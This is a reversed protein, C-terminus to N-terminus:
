VSFIDNNSTSAHNKKISSLLNTMSGKNYEGGGIGQGDSTGGGAGKKGGDASNNTVSSNIVTARCTATVCLGGGLGDGGDGGKGGKGGLAQNNAVISNIVTLQAGDPNVGVLTVFGVGLGGGYGNGGNNGTGGAGGIASNGIIQSDIITATTPLGFSSNSIEIGGGFAFGGLAHVLLSNVGPGGQGAIASNNAVICRTMHLTASPSNSIGGGVGDGGPGTATAGGQAVNNAIYSDSINLVAFVNNVIGGGFGAGAYPNADSLVFNNGALALNNTITCGLINLTAAVNCIGGGAGQSTGTTVGDGGDGGVSRNGSVTCGDLTMVVGIGETCLAGGNGIAGAGATALNTLFTCNICQATSAQAQTPDFGNLGGNNDLAGGIGFFFNGGAAVASNNSFTSSVVTLSAAGGPGGFNDIAGGASGGMNDFANGGAVHNNSFTCGLVLATGLNLVGGGVVTLASPSSGHIAQNDRVTDNILNLTAGHENLIGGGGGAGSPPVITGGGSYEGVLSAPLGGSAQGNAITLNALTLTNGSKVYFVRSANNGSISLRNAGTGEIDLNKSIELEGGTLTIVHVNKAFNITDGSVASAIAGRLSGPGSDASTTVTLSSPTLRDELIELHLGSSRRRATSGPRASTGLSRILHRFM